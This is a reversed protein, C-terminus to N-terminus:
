TPEFAELLPLPVPLFKKVLAPRPHVMIATNAFYPPGPNSVVRGGGNKVEESKEPGPPAIHVAGVTRGATRVDLQM